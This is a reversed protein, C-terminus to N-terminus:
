DTTILFSNPDDNKSPVLRAWENLDITPMNEVSAKAKVFEVVKPDTKELSKHQDYENKL